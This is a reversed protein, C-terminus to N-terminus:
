IILMLPWCLYYRQLWNTFVAADGTDEQNLQKGSIMKDLELLVILEVVGLALGFAYIFDSALYSICQLWM